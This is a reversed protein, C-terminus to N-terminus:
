EPKVPLSFSFKSGHNLRSSFEIKTGAKHALKATVYLGLGTGSTERTRYDESRYFKQFIKTQDSKSIGIGTDKVAFEIIGLKQKVIITVSGIKTYKIANTIFNQLIEELYLRSTYVHGITGTIDLNLHLGKTTADKNYENHLKHILERVDIDEPTDSVGREARSLTSLDNVMHALYIIQDHALTIADTLMVQTADPHKMMIQVNSITGEVITIPTRLEHSIVSIFEDREEELSKAKTIDRMIVIYGDHTESKKSRSYSSRIPSYTIELRIEEGDNFVYNLDDRTSAGKTTKLQNFLSVPKKSKDVLKILDDIYRGNLSDNTDLLSLSAANYVRIIGDMDVSLVADALNNVITLVRDRQLSEQQKSKSLATHDVEQALSLSLTVLGSLIIAVLTALDYTVIMPSVDHHLVIDVAVVVVFWLISLSLGNKSFYMNSALLLLLWFAVFPTAIGSVYLLYGAALVHYAILRLASDLKTRSPFLFQIIGMVFWLFSM